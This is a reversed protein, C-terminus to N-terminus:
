GHHWWALFRGSAYVPLSVTLIVFALVGAVASPEDAPKAATATMALLAVWWVSGILLGTGGILQLLKFRKATQEIVQVRKEEVM